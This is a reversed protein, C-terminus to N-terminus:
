IAVDLLGYKNLLILTGIAGLPITLNDYGGHTLAEAIATVCAVAIGVILANIFALGDVYIGLIVVTIIAVILFGLSGSLTKHHGFTTYRGYPYKKGVLAAVPDCIALILIPVYYFIFQGFYAYVLFCGFVIVPYLLSGKTKRKVKNISPLFDFKLSLLLIVLFSGCLLMVYLYNDLFLPFLMTLLGTGLHVLKRTWEVEVKLKHYLWEAIGFLALFM